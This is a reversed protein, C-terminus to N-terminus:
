LNDAARIDIHLTKKPFIGGGLPRFVWFLFRLATKSLRFGFAEARALSLLPRPARRAAAPAIASGRIARNKARLALFAGL